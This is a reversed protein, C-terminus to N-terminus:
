LDARLVPSISFCMRSSASTVPSQNVMWGTLFSKYRFSFLLTSSLVTTSLSVLLSLSSSRSQSSCSKLSHPPGGHETLENLAVNKTCKVPKHHSLLNRNTCSCTRADRRRLRELWQKMKSVPTKKKKKKRGSWHDIHRRRREPIVNRHLKLRRNQYHKLFGANLADDLKTKLESYLRLIFLANM